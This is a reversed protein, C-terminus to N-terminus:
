ARLLELVDEIEKRLNVGPLRPVRPSKTPEAVLEDLRNRAGSITFGQEYLLSRIRGLNRSRAVVANAEAHEIPIRSASQRFNGVRM